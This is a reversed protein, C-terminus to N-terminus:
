GQKEYVEVKLSEFLNLGELCEFISGLHAVSLLLAATNYWFGHCM